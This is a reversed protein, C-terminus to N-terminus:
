FSFFSIRGAQRKKVVEPAPLVPCHPAPLVTSLFTFLVFVDVDRDKNRDLKTEM